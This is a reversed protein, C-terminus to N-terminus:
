MEEDDILKSVQMFEYAKTVDIRHHYSKLLSVHFINHIRYTSFLTLRYTQAKIKNEVRFSKVFKHTLKKNFRKQKLNKISLIILKEVAYKKFTHNKNYYIAQYINAKKLRDSLDDKLTQLQKIRQNIFLIKEKSFNNEVKYRIEFHYDFM